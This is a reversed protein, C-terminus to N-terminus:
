FIGQKQYVIAHTSPMERVLVDRCMMFIIESAILIVFETLLAGIIDKTILHFAEM